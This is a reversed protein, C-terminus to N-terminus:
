YPQDFYASASIAFYDIDELRSKAVEIREASRWTKMGLRLALQRSATNPRMVKCWVQNVKMHEFAQCLLARGIETGFGMRWLAPHLGWGIEMTNDGHDILFGDGITEETLKEVAALHFVSRRSESQRSVHRRVFAEVEVANRLRYAVYKQYRVQTMYTALDAADAALLERVFMHPTELVPLTTLTQSM